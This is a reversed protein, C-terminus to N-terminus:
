MSRHPYAEPGEDQGPIGRGPNGQGPNGQGPNGQGPNGQDSRPDNGM